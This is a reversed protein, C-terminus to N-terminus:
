NKTAALVPEGQNKSPRRSPDEHIAAIRQAARKTLYGDASAPCDQCHWCYTNGRDAPWTITSHIQNANV